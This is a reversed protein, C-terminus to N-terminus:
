IICHQPHLSPETIWPVYQEQLPGVKLLMWMPFSVVVQLELELSETERKQGWHLHTGMGVCRCVCLHMYNEFLYINKFHHFITLVWFETATVSYVETVSILSIINDPDYCGWKISELRYFYKQIWDSFTILGFLSHTFHQKILPM